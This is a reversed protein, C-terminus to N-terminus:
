LGFILALLKSDFSLSSTGGDDDILDLFSLLNPQALTFLQFALLLLHYARNLNLLLLFSGGRLELLLSVSLHKLFDFDGVFDRQVAFLFLQALLAVFIQFDDTVVSLADGLLLCSSSFFSALLFLLFHFDLPQALKLLSCSVSLSLNVGQSGFSGELFALSLRAAFLSFLGFELALLGLLKVESPLSLKHLTLDHQSLLRLSLAVFEQVHDLLLLFHGILLTLDFRLPRHSELVM